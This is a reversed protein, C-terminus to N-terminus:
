IPGESDEIVHQSCRISNLGEPYGTEVGDESVERLEMLDQVLRTRHRPVAAKVAAVVAHSRLQESPQVHGGFTKRVCDHRPEGEPHQGRFVNLVPLLLRQGDRLPRGMSMSGIFDVKGVKVPVKLGLCFAFEFSPDKKLPDESGQVPVTSRLALVAVGASLFLALHLGNSSNLTSTAERYAWGVEGGILNGVQLGLAYRGYDFAYSQAQAFGGIGLQETIPRTGPFVMFSLEGGLAFAAPDGTVGSVLLGPNLTAGAARAEPALLLGAPVLLMGLRKDPLM